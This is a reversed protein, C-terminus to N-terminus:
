DSLSVLVSRPDTIFGALASAAVTAPSGMYIKASASGMRGKFNRTSATICVEGAALVGMHGGFCAGCTANTVVAGAKLLTEVVGEQVAQLYVSQSGPTVILRVGPAVTKGRVIDAAVRLDEIKGNACSGIFAQQIQVADKFDSLRKANNPVADPMVVYPELQDLDIRRIAIYNAGPDPAVPTAPRDMRGELYEATIEDFEFLAFEASIEACMTAITRRDSM